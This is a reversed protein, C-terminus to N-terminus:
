LYHSNTLTSLIIPPFEQQRNLLNRSNYSDISKVTKIDWDQNLRSEEESYDGLQFRWLVITM